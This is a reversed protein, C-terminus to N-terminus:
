FCGKSSFVIIANLKEIVKKNGMYYTNGIYRSINPPM